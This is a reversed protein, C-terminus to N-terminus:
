REFSQNRDFSQRKRCGLLVALGLLQISSPEPVPQTGAVNTGFNSSLVLFDAFDVMGNCDVDGQSLDEVETGFNASLVLFDAFDVAGNGDLDGTTNPSCSLEVPGSLKVVNWTTPDGITNDGNGFDTYLTAIDATDGQEQNFGLLIFGLGHEDDLKPEYDPEYDDMSVSWPLAMELVYGTDTEEGEISILEHQEEFLQHGHRYIDPGFEDATNVVMDYIAATALGPSGDPPTGDVFTSTHDNFPNFVPQIVDQANYASNGGNANVRFDPTNDLVVASIYLNENDWSVYWTASLEEATDGSGTLLLSGQPMPWEMPVALQSAMEIASINGDIVPTATPIERTIQGFASTAFCQVVFVFAFTFTRLRQM